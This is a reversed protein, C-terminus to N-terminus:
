LASGCHPVTLNTIDVHELLLLEQKRWIGGAYGTLSGDTGIVRHCPVIISVPNHGVAGGVTQASMRQRGTRRAVEAAIEGYTMLKGCPISLLIDWVMQRFASGRLHLKPQFDPQEGSFYIDLWRIAQRIPESMGQISDSSLGACAYKQGAFWAGTLGDEDSSLIMEGLPSHYHYVTDM